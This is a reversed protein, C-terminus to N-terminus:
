ESRIGLFEPEPARTILDEVMERPDADEFLVKAVRSAIPMDAGAKSALGM